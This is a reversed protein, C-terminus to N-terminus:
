GWRRTAKLPSVISLPMQWMAIKVSGAPLVRISCL